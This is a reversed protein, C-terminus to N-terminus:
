YCNCNNIADDDLSLKNTLILLILFWLLEYKQLQPPILRIQPHLLIQKLILNTLFRMQMVVSSARPKKELSKSGATPVCKIPFHSSKCTVKTAVLYILVVKMVNNPSKIKINLELEYNQFYLLTLRFNSRFDQPSLTVHIFRNSM